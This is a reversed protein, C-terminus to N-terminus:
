LVIKRVKTEEETGRLSKDKESAVEVWDSVSMCVCVCVCLCVSVTVFKELDGIHKVAYEFSSREFASVV